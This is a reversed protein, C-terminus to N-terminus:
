FEYVKVLQYLITITVSGVKQYYYKSKKPKINRTKNAMM